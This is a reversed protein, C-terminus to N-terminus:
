RIPRHQESGREVRDVGILVVPANGKVTRSSVSPVILMRSTAYLWRALSSCHTVMLEAELGSARSPLNRNQSRLYVRAVSSRVFPPWVFPTASISPCELM